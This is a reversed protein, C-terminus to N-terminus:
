VTEITDLEAEEEEGRVEEEGGTRTAEAMTGVYLSYASTGPQKGLPAYGRRRTKEKEIYDSVIVTSVFFVFSLILAVEPSVFVVTFLFVFTVCSIMCIIGCSRLLALFSPHEYWETPYM